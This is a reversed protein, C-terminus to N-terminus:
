KNNEMILKNNSKSSPFQKGQMPHNRNISIAIMAGIYVIINPLAYLILDIYGCPKENREKPM